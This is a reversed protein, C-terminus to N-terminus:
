RALQPLLAFIWETFSLLKHLMWPGMLLLVAAMGLLKPVFTLSMETIQTVAQFLSVILGVVMAVALLPLALSLTTTMAERMIALVTADTMTVRERLKGAALAGYPAM